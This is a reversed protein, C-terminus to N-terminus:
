KGQRVAAFARQNVTGGFMPLFSQSTASMSTTARAKRVDETARDLAEADTTDFDLRKM